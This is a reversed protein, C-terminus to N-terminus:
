YPLRSYPVHDHRACPAVAIVNGDDACAWRPKGGCRQARTGAEGADQEVVLCIRTPLNIATHGVRRKIASGRKTTIIPAAFGQHAGSKAAARM